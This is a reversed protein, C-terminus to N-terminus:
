LCGTSTNLCQKLPTEQIQRGVAEKELVAHYWPPSDPEIKKVGQHEAPM